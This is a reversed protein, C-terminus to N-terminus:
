TVYPSTQSPRRGRVQKKIAFSGVDGRGFGFSHVDHNARVPGRRSGLTGHVFQLYNVPPVLIYETVDECIVFQNLGDGGVDYICDPPGLM